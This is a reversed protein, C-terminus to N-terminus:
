ENTEGKTLKTLFTTTQRIADLLEIDSNSDADRQEFAVHVAKAAV